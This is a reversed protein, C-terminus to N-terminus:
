NLRGVVVIVSVDDLPRAGEDRGIRKGDQVTQRAVGRAPVHKAGVGLDVNRNDVLNVRADSDLAQQRLKPTMPIESQHSKDAHLRVLVRPREVDGPPKARGAKRHHDAPEMYGSAEGHQGAQLGVQLNRDIHADAQEGAFQFPPHIFDEGVRRVARQLRDVVVQFVQGSEFRRRRRNKGGLMQPLCDLAHRAEIGAAATRELAREAGDDFTCPRFDRPRVASSM